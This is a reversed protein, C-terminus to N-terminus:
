KKKSDNKKKFGYFSMIEYSKNTIWKKKKVCKKINTNKSKKTKRQQPKL